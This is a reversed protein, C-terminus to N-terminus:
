EASFDAHHKGALVASWKNVIRRRMQIRSNYGSQSAEPMDGCWGSQELLCELDYKSQEFHARHCLVAGQGISESSGGRFGTRPLELRVLCTLLLWLIGAACSISHTLSSLIQVWAALSAERGPWHGEGVSSRVEVDDWNLVSESVLCAAAAGSLPLASTKHRWPGVLSPLVRCPIRPFPTAGASVVMGPGSEDLAVEAGPLRLHRLIVEATVDCPSKTPLSPQPPVLVLPIKLSECADVQVKTASGSVVIDALFPRGESAITLEPSQKELGQMHCSTSNDLCCKWFLGFTTCPPRRLGALRLEGKVLQKVNSAAVGGPADGSVSSYKALIGGADYFEFGHQEVRAKNNAHTAIRVRSSGRLRQAISLFADIDCRNGLAMILVHPRNVETSVTIPVSLDSLDTTSTAGPQRGVCDIYRSLAQIPFVHHYFPYGLYLLGPFGTGVYRDIPWSAGTCDEPKQQLKIAFTGDGQGTGQPTVSYAGTRHAPTESQNKILWAVGRLCVVDSAPRFRLISDLAWATHAATSEGQGARAPDTYSLLTEGWGGDANQCDLLWTVARRTAKHAAPSACWFGGNALARLVNTTGYIYNSGWRGWWAGSEEQIALLFDLAPKAAELLRRRMASGLDLHQHERRHDLLSGFCELVRGTVDATSPDVLSDMDSFPMKHLWHADNNIDFAGWGGDRNQMGLIWEVANAICESHISHPEEKVLTMIVVATDDVDPFFSNFYEFSWGGAQQTNAYIRWDGHGVTVQMNRLWAAAKSLPKHMRSNTEAEVTGSTGDRGPDLALAMRADCLANLVLATDWCASITSQLWKGKSEHVAFRELAEIGLRVSKHHMPYGQLLLAWVGGHIAPFIGAWDGSVEQHDLIWDMCGKLAKKRIPNKDNKMLNSIWDQSLINDAAKFLGEVADRDQEPGLFCDWLPRTMPVNKNSPDVWLEDLFDSCANTMRKPADEHGTMGDDTPLAYVPEHHRVILIPILTARAWSSLAYINLKAWSPLLILEAPMSPVASWPVLGYTALFFRTFFRVSAVGGQALIFHAARKMDPHSRPVGLLRLALYAEVSTSLNGPLDPAPPWGGDAGQDSLLWRRLADIEPASLCWMGPTSYAYKLMVYQATLTADCSVPAQLM